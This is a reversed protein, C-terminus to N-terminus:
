LKDELFNKKAFWRQLNKIDEETELTTGYTNPVDKWTETFLDSGTQKSRLLAEEVTLAEEVSPAKPNGQEDLNGSKLDETIKRSYIADFLDKATFASQNVEPAKYSVYPKLHFDSLDPVILEPVMEPILIFKQDKTTYGVPRVGLHDIPLEREPTMQRLKHSRPGRKNHLLFKRFNRKGLCVPSAHFSRHIPSFAICAQYIPLGPRGSCKFVCLRSAAM